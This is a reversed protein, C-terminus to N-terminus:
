AGGGKLPSTPSDNGEDEELQQRVEDEVTRRLHPYAKATYVDHVGASLLKQYLREATLEAYSEMLEQQRRSLEPASYTRVGCSRGCFDSPHRLFSRFQPFFATLIHVFPNATVPASFLRFVVNAVWKVLNLIIATGVVISCIHGYQQVYFWFSQFFGLPGRVFEPLGKLDPFIDSVSGIRAKNKGTMEEMMKEYLDAAIAIGGKPRTTVREWRRLLDGAYIGGEDWNIVDDNQLVKNLDLAEGSVMRPEAAMQIGQATYYVWRGVANQFMPSFPLLCPEAMSHSLLRKTKPELFFGNRPTTQLPPISDGERGQHLHLHQRTRLAVYEKYDEEGMTVPLSNYCMGDNTTRATVMIRKCRYQYWAEGASTVFQDRGLSATEGNMVAGQEAARAAYRGTKTKKNAKCQQERLARLARVMNKGMEGYLYSDKANSYTAISVQDEHIRRRYPTHQLESTLYLDTFDTAHVLAGCYSFPPGKQLRIHTGDTSVFTVTGTSDKIEVGELPGRALYLPCMDSEKPEKWMFTGHEGTECEEDDVSCPLKLGTRDIQVQGQEDIIGSLTELRVEFHSVVMADEDGWWDKKWYYDPMGRDFTGWKGECHVDHGSSYQRGVDDSIVYNTINEALKTGLFTKEKWLRECEAVPVNFPRDFSFERGVMTTHGTPANCLYYLKTRRMSCQRVSIRTNDAKQLLLLTSNKAHEVTEPIDCSLDPGMVVSTVDSPATCDYANFQYMRPTQVPSRAKRLNPVSGTVLQNWERIEETLSPMSAEVDRAWQDVAEAARKRREKRDTGASPLESDAPRAAEVREKVKQRWHQEWNEWFEDDPTVFDELMEDRENTQTESPGSGYWLGLDKLKITLKEIMGPTEGKAMEKEAEDVSVQVPPPATASRRRLIEEWAEDVSVSVPKPPAAIDKEVEDAPVQVPMAAEASKKRLLEEWAEDVSVSVPMPPAATEDAPAPALVSRGDMGEVPASDPM